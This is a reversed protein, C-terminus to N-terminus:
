ASRVKRSNRRDMEVHAKELDACIKPYEAHDTKGIKEYTEKVRINNNIYVTLEEDNFEDLSFKLHAYKKKKKLGKLRLM